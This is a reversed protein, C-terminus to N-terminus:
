RRKHRVYLGAYIGSACGVLAVLVALVLVSNLRFAAQLVAGLIALIAVMLAFKWLM